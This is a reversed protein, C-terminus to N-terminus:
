EVPVLMIEYVKPWFKGTIFLRDFEQDYAIGNLVDTEATREAESLIGSLDITGLVKGNIPDIRIITDTQYINAFIEGNVYELENLYAIKKGQDTVIVQDVVEFTEGDLFYLTYSGDSMILWKGDYALGWGQTPYSFEELLSFDELQYVFGTNERWTLQVLVGEWATLGEGFYQSPLDIQLLVQGTEVDVKRLSSEGYLGTSEYFYGDLFILGQTFAQTDHPYENIVQYTMQDSFEQPQSTETPQEPIPSAVVDDTQGPTLTWPPSEEPQQPKNLRTILIVGFISVGIISLLIVLVRISRNQKGDGM